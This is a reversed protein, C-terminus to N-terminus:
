DQCGNNPWMCSCTPPVRGNKSRRLFLPREFVNWIEHLFRFQKDSRRSPIGLYREILRRDFSGVDRTTTRDKLKLFFFFVSFSCVLVLGEGVRDVVVIGLM